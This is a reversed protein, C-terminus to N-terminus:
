HLKAVSKTTPRKLISARPKLQNLEETTDKRKFNHFQRKFFVFKIQREAFPLPSSSADLSLYHSRLLALVPHVTVRGREREREREREAAKDPWKSVLRKLRAQQWARGAPLAMRGDRGRTIPWNRRGDDEWTRRRRVVYFFRQKMSRHRNKLILFRWYLKKQGKPLIFWNRLPIFEELLM